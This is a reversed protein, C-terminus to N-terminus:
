RHQLSKIQARLEATERTRSQREARLSSSTEELNSSLRIIQEQQKSALAATKDLQDHTRELDEKLSATEAAYKADLQAVTVSQNEIQKWLIYGGWGALIAVLLISFFLAYAASSLITSFSRQERSQREANRRFDTMSPLSSSMNKEPTSTSIPSSSRVPEAVTSVNMVYAPQAPEPEAAQPAPSAPEPAKAKPPQPEQRPKIVVPAYPALPPAAEVFDFELTLDKPTSATQDSAKLPRSSNSKRKM